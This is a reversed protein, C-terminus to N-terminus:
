LVGTLLWDGAMFDVLQQIDKEYGDEVADTLIALIIFHPDPLPANALKLSM